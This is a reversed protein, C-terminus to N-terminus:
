FIKQGHSTASNHDKLPVIIKKLHEKAMKSEESKVDRNLYIGWIQNTLKM